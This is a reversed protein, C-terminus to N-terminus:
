CVLDSTKAQMLTMDASLGVHDSLYETGSPIAVKGLLLLRAAEAKVQASTLIFDICHAPGASGLYEARFTAPCKGDFADVLKTEALFHNFLPSDRDVNFDGCVVVPTTASRVFESLSALQDRHLTFFRGTESWDGDRNAVPHTNVICLGRYALRTALSGKLWARARTLRSVGPTRQPLGLGRYSSAVVPSRSFTVLGGAPGIPSRRYSVGSFSRMRRALLTLHWYTFVEQFSVVDIDSAEFSDAIAAFREPLNSGVMPVGRTNLTAVTLRGDDHEGHSITRASM